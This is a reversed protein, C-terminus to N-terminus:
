KSSYSTEYEDYRAPRKRVRGSTRPVPTTHQEPSITAKPAQIVDTIDEATPIARAEYKKRLLDPGPAKESKMEKLM